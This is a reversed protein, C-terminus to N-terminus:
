RERTALAIARDLPLPIYLVEGIKCHIDTPKNNFWAILWWYQADGYIEHSFKYMKDGIGIVREVFTFGTALDDESLEYLRLTETQIVEDVNMRSFVKERLKSDVIIKSRYKELM